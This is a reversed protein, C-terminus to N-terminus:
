RVGGITVEDIKIHPAGKGSQRNLQQPSGKGCGGRESFGLDAGVMSIANLTSFLEGSMNIDRVMPGLHGNEIRYGWLAGFTFQDGSTQGGKAGVLYYGRDIGSVMDDFTSPGPEIFINSMRVLPTNQIDVARMNGSLPEGFEAATERSHLRGSLIGERILATRVARVGEDDVEYTGPLGPLAPDDTVNLISSGLRAGLQLKIRFAPNNQLGDAESLHGFAEHIFLGAESPDLVVPFRGAVAPEAAPLQTAFDIQRRLDEERDLLRGYDSCGGFAYRVRQIVDSRRTVIMGYLVVNLIEYEIRTGESNVFLRRSFFEDYEAESTVVAEGKLVMANYHALLDLKEQFSISRPDTSATSPFSGVLAPAATLRLPKDRLSGATRASKVASAVMAAAQGVDSFSAIAKGGGAYARVNTGHTTYTAAQTLKNGRLSLRTKRNEEHRLDVTADAVESVLRALGEDM